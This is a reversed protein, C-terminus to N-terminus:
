ARPKRFGITVWREEEHRDCSTLGVASWAAVVSAEEDALIGSGIALGDGRLLAAIRPAFEVLQPAFLNALAMDFTGLAADLSADIRVAGAVDNIVANEKAVLCADPDVDVGWIEPVGLKAAAIALIGSGTGIDLIRTAPRAQLARELLLLCGRTSAHHGTGFAMGPDIVIGIRGAPVDTVWPPHVFLREGIALPPFHEKWNEAWATAPVAEVRIEPPAALPFLAALHRCYDELAATPVTGSFHATMRVRDDFEETMLGPAGHDMLFSALGEALEQPATVILATWTMTM